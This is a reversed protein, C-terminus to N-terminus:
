LDRLRTGDSLVEPEMVKLEKFIESKRERLKELVSELEKLDEQARSIESETGSLNREYGSKTNQAGDSRTEEELRKKREELNKYDRRLNTLLNGSEMSSIKELIKQGKKDDIEIKGSEVLARIKAIIKEIAEQSDDKLFASVPDEIYLMLMSAHEFSEEGDSVLKKLKKMGKDLPAVTQIVISEIEDRKKDISKMEKLKDQYSEWEDGKKFESIKNELEKKKSKLEEISSRKNQIESEADSIKKIQERLERALKLADLYSGVEGLKNNIDSRVGSMVDDMKKSSKMLNNMSGPFVEKLPTIFRNVKNEADSLASSCRKFYEDFDNITYEVPRGFEIFMGNFATAVTSRYSSVVNMVREDVKSPGPSNKLDMLTKSLNRSAEIMRRHAQRLQDEFMSNRDKIKEELGDVFEDLGIERTEFKEEGTAKKIRFINSLWGM